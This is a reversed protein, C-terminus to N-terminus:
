RSGRGEAVLPRVAEEFDRYELAGMTQFGYWTREFRDLATRYLEREPLESSLLRLYERNTKKLNLELHGAERFWLLLAYFLYRFALRLDGEDAAKRAALLARRATLSLLDREDAGRAFAEDRGARRLEDERRFRMHRLILYLALGLASLAITIAGWLLAQPSIRPTGLRGFNPLHIWSFAKQIMAVIGQIIQQSLSWRAYARERLDPTQIYQGSALEEQLAQRVAHADPRVPGDPGSSAGAQQGCAVSTLLLALATAALFGARSM